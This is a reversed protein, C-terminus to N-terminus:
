ESIVSALKAFEARTIDRSPGFTGNEYGNILGIHKAYNIYQAYWANSDTDPFTATEATLDKNSAELLIKLAEVRSVKQNPKFTGDSYGGILGATKAASIYPAFWEGIEVDGFPKAPEESDGMEPITIGYLGVVIKVLEARTIQSDPEFEGNAKGSIVGKLRLNEIFTEAWHGRVDGFPAAVNASQLEVDSNNNVNQSTKSSKSSLYGGGGGGGGGSGGGSLVSSFSAFATFHKTWIILNSGVDIKCDGDVALADGTAQTNAECVNTIETFTTGTRSYGVRKGAQGILSIRVGKDFSLKGTFGVEIGMEFTRTEGSVEPIAVTTAIPAAIIGDWTSDASTITTSAPIVITALDSTMTIAPITGVGGSVFSGVDVTPNTTEGDVTVNISQTPNTIVVQPTTNNVTANGSGDPTTQTSTLSSDVLLLEATNGAFDSISVVVDNAFTTIETATITLVAGTWSYTLTKDSGATLAKEVATKSSDSLIENFVLDTEGVSLILDTSGDGLKAVSPNTNDINITIDASKYYNGANDSIIVFLPYTGDPFVDLEESTDWDISYPATTDEGIKTGMSEYFFAVKEVGSGVDSADANITVIGKLYSNEAINSISGTPDISDPNVTITYVLETVGDQATVKLTNGDLVPDDVNASDWTQNAEVKTLAALFDTKSTGFVVNKITDTGITYTSSEVRPLSNQSISIVPETEIFPRMLQWHDSLITSDYGNDLILNDGNSTLTHRNRASWSTGVAQTWNAGDSSYWLDNKYSATNKGGAIWMKDMAVVVSAFYRTDWPASATEQTWNVGNTSSWVDNKYTGEGYGAMIYMKDGFTLANFFSRISWDASATEQTWIIGDGSSWVDNLATGASGGFIWMKNDFVTYAMNSRASWGANNTVQTWTIGDESNWVDNRKVNGALTGGAIWLKNDFVFVAMNVRGSWGASATEQTWTRGDRSSLVSSVNHYTGAGEVAEIGGILWYKDNFYASGHQYRPQRTTDSSILQEEYPLFVEDWSFSSDADVNGYYLYVNAVSDANISPMKGYFTTSTTNCSDSVMYLPLVTVGDNDTLRFDSCDSKAQDASIISQTDFSIKIPLNAVSSTTPNDITVTARYLWASDYWDSDAAMAMPTFILSSVMMFSALLFAAVKKLQNLMMDNM